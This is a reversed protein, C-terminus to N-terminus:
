RTILYSAVIAATEGRLTLKGLSAIVLGAAKAAAVEEETFGGEPGIFCSTIDRAYDETALEQGSLDFFAASGPAANIVAEALTIPEALEPITTRGSQECAERIIKVIRERNFGTKVTRTTILPVIRAIGLETAKQCILEFNERKLLACFLTAKKRAEREPTEVSEINVRAESKNIDLIVARAEQGQGDCLLVTDGTVLRLVNRWQSVVEGDTIALTKQSLDFDGIFRHLRM